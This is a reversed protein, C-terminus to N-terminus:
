SRRVEAPCLVSFIFLLIYIYLIKTTTCNKDHQFKKEKKKVKIGSQPKHTERTKKRKKIEESIRYKPCLFEGCIENSDNCKGFIYQESYFIDRKRLQALIDYNKDM